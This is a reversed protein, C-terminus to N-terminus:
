KPMTESGSIVRVIEASPLVEGIRSALYRLSDRHYEADYSGVGDLAIIVALNRQSADVATARVCAHTNVGAIVLTGSFGNLLDALQTEFFASYKNKKVITATNPVTLLECVEAGPTNKVAPICNEERAKRLADSGDAAHETIVFFIPLNRKSFFTFLENIRDAIGKVSDRPLRKVFDNQMDVVLLAYM